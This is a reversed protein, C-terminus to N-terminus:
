MKRNKSFIFKVAILSGSIVGAVWALTRYLFFPIFVPYLYLPPKIELINKIYILLLVGLLIIAPYFFINYFYSLFLSLLCLFFLPIQATMSLTTIPDSIAKTKHKKLLQVGWKAQNKQQKFFDSLTPRHYHFVKAKPTYYMKGVRTLRYGFDTEFAQYTYNENFLIKKAVETKLCLNMTPARSIYNGFHNFRNELELGIIKQFNTSDKPTGCYGATALINNNISFPKILEDLWNKEVVCDADTCAFYETSTKQLAYNFIKSLGGDKRELYIKNGYKKLIEYSGDDSMNDLIFVKKNKYKLNLISNICKEVTEKKNYVAVFITIQNNM